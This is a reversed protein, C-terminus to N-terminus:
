SSGAPRIAFPLSSVPKIPEVPQWEFPSPQTPGASSATKKLVIPKQHYKIGGRTRSPSIDHTVPSGFESPPPSPTWSPLSSPFSMMPTTPLTFVGEPAKLDPTKIDPKIAIAKQPTQFSTPVPSATATTNLLPQARSGLLAKKLRQASREANLAAATTIAVNPTVNLPRRSSSIALQDRTGVGGSIELKAMRHRLQSVEQKQQDIAIDINRFTRNVTDLSPPVQRISPRGTRLENIRKKSAQLHDELKQVRDKIARINKRLQSQTESYEPALTRIKLMKAFEADTKAKNFRMIEGKRTTVKLMNSALEKLVKRLSVRQLKLEKVDVQVDVLVRGYEEIDGFVWKHPDGLDAKQHSIGSIKKLEVAELSAATALQKLNEFENTLTTLLLRCEAQMGQEPTPTPTKPPLPPTLSPTPAISPIPSAFPSPSSSLPIAPGAKAGFLSPQGGFFPQSAKTTSPTVEAPKSPTGWSSPAATSPMFTSFSTPPTFLTGSPGPTTTPAITPTAVKEVPPSVPPVSAPTTTPAFITAQPKEGLASILSLLPPTMPRSSEDETPQAPPPPTWQGFPEKPAAPQAVMVPPASRSVLPSKEVEGELVLPTSALPSSRIPRNNSRPVLGFPSTPPPSAKLAPVPMQVPASPTDKVPSGPPTTSRDRAPSVRPVSSPSSTQPPPSVSVTIKPHEAKPTTSPSRTFAPTTPLPIETPEPGEEAQEETEEEDSGESPAESEEEDSEESESPVYSLDSETDDQSEAEGAAEEETIEGEEEASVEVFSSSTSSSISELSPEQLLINETAKEKPEAPVESAKVEVVGPEEKELKPTTTPTSPPKPPEKAPTSTPTTSVPPQPPAQAPKTPTAESLEAGSPKEGTSRLLDSFSKSGGSSFAAFGGGGNSFASFAGNSSAPAPQAPAPLPPFASKFTGGPMSSAGFTPQATSAKPPTSTPTGPTAPLTFVSVPEPPKPTFFPSDKPLGGLFGSAPKVFASPTTQLNSFAGTSPAPTSSSFASSTTEKISDRAVFQSTVSPTTSTNAIESIASPIKSDPSEAPKRFVNTTAGLPSSEPQKSSDGTAWVPKASPGTKSAAVGFASQTGSSAFASFAGGTSVSPTASQAVSSVAGFSPKGFASTGAQFQGFSSQGFAPQGFTSTGSSAVQSFASQGSGFLPPVGFSSPASEPKFQFASAGFTTIPQQTSSFASPKAFPGKQDFGAFAGFGTGPKILSDDTPQQGSPVPASTRGFISPKSDADQSNAAGLGLGGFSPADDAVMSEEPVSTSTPLTPTAQPPGGFSFTSQGFKAPGTSSFAGFGGSPTASSFTSTSSQGFPSSTSTSGFAPTTASQEFSPAKGFVSPPHQSFGSQVQGFVSPQGFASGSTGFASSQAGFTSPQGFVTTSPKIASVETPASTTPSITPTTQMESSLERVMSSPVPPVSPASTSTNLATIMGPYPAGTVNLVHWGLITGDSAYVYMIPHAPLELAEGSATSHHYSEGSTLDVDMGLLVTDNQDKDLPLSPTSTEELSLNHWSEGSDDAVSGILGIDSSTSDGIFLLVKSPDWGRLCVLFEGPPRLGPFPLYPNNFRIDQASNNKSDLSAHFHIQEVDPTLQGPPAYITHFSSTSLWHVSIASMNNASPPHPISSKPTATATPSFTVIDGSQLGLALQKGKPSWSISTPTTSPSRGAMWGGFSILKQVDFLEVVLSGPSNACDRLVAVLEPIDGPNPQISLLATPSSTAFVHIPQVPCGRIGTTSQHRQVAVKLIYPSAGSITVRRQPRYSQEDEASTAALASRLDALPSLILASAGSPDRTVAAFWGKSNVIAFLTAKGPFSALDLPEHSLRLRARKNLLRLALFDADKEPAESSNTQVQPTLAPQLQSVNAM